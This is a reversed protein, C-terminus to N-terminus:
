SLQGIVVDNIQAIIEIRKIGSTTALNVVGESIPVNSGFAITNLGTSTRISIILNDESIQIDQINKPLYVTITAKSPKGSYFISEATSIIKNAYNNMQTIQIQDEVSSTYFLAIGLVTILILTVFGMIILYEFSIQSKKGVSKKLMRKEMGKEFLFLLIKIFTKISM